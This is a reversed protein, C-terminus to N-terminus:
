IDNLEFAYEYSIINKNIQNSQWAKELHSIEVIDNISVNQFSASVKNLVKLESESFLLPNFPRDKRGKFQEGTYGQPFYTKHIDIINQNVIYEFISQFNNPVPGKDIAKYTLGSISFCSIKFMLFDAYFLLKNMKTKFPKMKLSFFVVMETLKELSPKRYGSYINATHGGLLYDKINIQFINQKNEQILLQTKLLYKNKAKDDLSECLMIMGAFNDPNDALQILKANSTSPMEGAEYNRYGNIGFGLVASMKSASMGYKERIKTIEDPFPIKYKDRYQNYVQAMNLVDTETTTLQENTDACKYFHFVVEFNEKRFEISRKETTLKMEKGTFPSKM